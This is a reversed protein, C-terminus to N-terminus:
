IDNNLSKLSEGELRCNIWEPDLEAGISKYFKIAPENWDLVQWEFRGCGVENAHKKLEDLALKGLGKKRFEPLVFLDELCLSKGKWTSYRYYCLTFGARQGDCELIHAFYLPDDGFGDNELQELSIAVKDAAKEFEALKNILDFIFQADEKTAERFSNM